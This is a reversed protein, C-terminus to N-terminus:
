QRSELKKVLRIYNLMAKEKSMGEYEKWINWKQSAVPDFMSPKPKDNDGVTAQKYLAYLQLLIDDSPRNKLQTVRQAADNFEKEM